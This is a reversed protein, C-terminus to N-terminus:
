PGSVRTKASDSKATGLSDGGRQRQKCEFEHWDGDIDLQLASAPLPDSMFWQHKLAESASIRQRPDVSLLSVLLDVGDPGLRDSYEDALPRPAPISSDRRLADGMLSFWPLQQLEIVSSLDAGLQRCIIELQTLEDQGTFVPKGALLDLLICGIGWMDVETGYSTSGLLVEPPRYWLTIVRNTMMRSTGTDSPEHDPDCFVKALGFDALKVSGRRDLLVNSGKIDRHVVGHLHLYNIAKLLQFLIYKIQALSFSGAPHQQLGALDFDLYEFVLYVSEVSSAVIRELRVINPHKMGKLLKIERM